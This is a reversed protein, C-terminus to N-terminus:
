PSETRYAERCCKLSAIIVTGNKTEWFLIIDHSCNDNNHFIHDKLTAEIIIKYGIYVVKSIGSLNELDKEQYASGRVQQEANMIISKDSELLSDM